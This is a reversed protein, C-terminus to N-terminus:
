LTQLPTSVVLRMRLVFILPSRHIMVCSSSFFLDLLSWSYFCRRRFSPLHRMGIEPLGHLVGEPSLNRM